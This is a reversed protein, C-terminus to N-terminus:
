HGLVCPLCRCIQCQGFSPTCATSGPKSMVTPGVKLTLRRAKRRAYLPTYAMAPMRHTDM